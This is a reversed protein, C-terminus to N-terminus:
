QDKNSVEAIVRFGVDIVKMEPRYPVRSAPRARYPIDQWSGGRVVVHPDQADAPKWKSTTWEAVNGLMDYLGASNPAFRGVPASARYGDNVNDVAIRHFPVAEHGTRYYTFDALNALTSFDRGALGEPNYGGFRAAWEWQEESPLTVRMGTKKSLWRCFGNAELQSVRLVPQRPQSLDTGREGGGNFHLFETHELRSDHTPDFLAYQANTIECTSMWFPQDVTVTRETWEDEYGAADGFVFTGCPIMVLRLDMKVGLAILHERPKGTKPDLSKTLGAPDVRPPRAAAVSAPRNPPQAPVVPTIARRPADLSFAAIDEPDFEVNAYRRMLEKRRAHVPDVLASGCIDKWCGHAPTNLDIWTILRDWGEADLKVGYHGKELVQILRAADAHFDAPVLMHLDSELTANRVYRKLEFYAPPFHAPTMVKGKKSLAIVDARLTLDAIVAGDRSTLRTNGNHCGVCHQDLVPQVERNFSFGRMPGYWPTIASAQRQAAKALQAQPAANANEHCGVCSLVEGPQGTFWSRMYQLAKGDADLPQVAIPIRAPITFHASGDDEVPVTGVIVRVDWPGDLGVRDVQGGMGRMAFNYSSLRLKKVTGKPIDKLGDGVYINSMVVTATTAGPNTRAPIIAPKPRKRLPIPEIMWRGPAGYLKLANDFVDVLYISTEGDRQTQAAAIFYKASLPYPTVFMPMRGGTIADKMVPEVTKGYGPIQQVVGDAERTGKTTDFLVLQGIQGADHHGTTIGVFMTSSGPVARPYFTSNPWYSNRGYLAAQGSGDPNMSFVVRNFAHPTDTYEWRLYMVRGNPLMSPHWNHDQDITLREVKGGPTKRYLNAIPASGRICPVGLQTATSTFYISGDPGYCADYNHVDKDPITEIERIVPQGNKPDTKPPLDVECIQWGGKAGASSYLLRDADFHVDMRAVCRKNPPTFLTTATGDPSVPSLVKVANDHGTPGISSLSLWNEPTLPGNAREVFLLSDFDLLPNALLAEKLLLDFKEALPALPQQSELVSKELEALTKLYEGGKPYKSGCTKTLDEIALRLSDFNNRILKDHKPKPRPSVQGPKQHEFRLWEFRVETAPFDPNPQPVRAAGSNAPLAFVAALWM